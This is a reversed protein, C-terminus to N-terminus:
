NLDLVVFSGFFANRPDIAGKAQANKFFTRMELNEKLLKDVECEWVQEIKVYYTKEIENIRRITEVYNVKAIKNNPGIADSPQCELFLFFLFFTKLTRILRFTWSFLM